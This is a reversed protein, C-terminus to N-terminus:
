IHILSLIQVAVEAEMLEACLWAVAERLLDAHEGSMLKGVLEQATIRPVDAM